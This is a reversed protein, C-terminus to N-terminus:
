SRIVGVQLHIGNLEARVDRRMALCTPYQVQDLILSAGLMDDGGEYMRDYWHLYLTGTFESLAAEQGPSRPWDFGCASFAACMALVPLTRNM